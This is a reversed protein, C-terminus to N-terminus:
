VQTFIVRINTTYYHWYKRFFIINNSCDRKRLELLMQNLVASLGEIASTAKTDRMRALILYGSTREVLTGVASTNM